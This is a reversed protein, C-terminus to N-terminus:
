RQEKIPILSAWVAGNAGTEAFVVRTYRLPTPILLAATSQDANTYGVGKITTSSAFKWSFSFPNLLAFTANVTTTGIQNPDILFNRYWDIGDQSYEVAANLTSNTSSATFQLLLAAYDAKTTFGGNTTQAYADYVPTTTTATGPTMYKLTTTAAATSTATAFGSPNAFATGAAGFIAMFAAIISILTKKM